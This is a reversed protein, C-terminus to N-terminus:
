FFIIQIKLLFFSSIHMIIHLTENISNRLNVLLFPAKRTYFVNFDKRINLLMVHIKEWIRSEFKLGELSPIHYHSFFSKEFYNLLTYKKLIIGRSSSSIIHIFLDEIMCPSCVIELTGTLGNTKPFSIEVRIHAGGSGHFTMLAWLMGLQMEPCMKKVCRLHFQHSVRIRNFNVRSICRLIYLLNIPLHM